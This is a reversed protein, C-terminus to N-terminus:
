LVAGLIWPNFEEEGLGALESKTREGSAVSLIREFIEAGIEELPVGALVRGANVDM